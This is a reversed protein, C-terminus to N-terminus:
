LLGQEPTGAPIPQLRTVVTPRALLGALSAGLARVAPGSGHLGLDERQVM